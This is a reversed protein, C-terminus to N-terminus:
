EFLIDFHPFYGADIVQGYIFIYFSNLCKYEFGVLPM